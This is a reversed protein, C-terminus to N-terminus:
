VTYVSHVGNKILMKKEKQSLSSDTILVDVETLPLVTYLAKQNIKSSDAVVIKTASINIMTKKTSALVEDFHTLGVKLDLATTAIFAKDVNLTELANNTLDGNLMFSNPYMIGGTVIVTVFSCSALVSAIMVDNTLVTISSLDKRKILENAIQLTTTGSDLIINEGNCIMKLACQAIRLKEEIRDMRRTEFLPESNKLNNLTAGGHVRIIKGEKELVNLDRRITTEHISFMESLQNVSIFDNEKLINIIEFRRESAIM